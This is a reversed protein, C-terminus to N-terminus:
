LSGSQTTALMALVVSRPPISQAAGLSQVAISAAANAEAVALELCEGRALAAALYGCFCDGAGTTDVLTARHGAVRSVGGGRVIGAGESGMTVIVVQKHSVGLRAISAGLMADSAWAEPAGGSLRALEGENVVLVDTVPLLGIATEDAPAANLVTLAGLARARHFFAATAAAPTEMQALCVDSAEIPLTEVIEKRVTANAGPSVVIQNDDLGTIILACGTPSDATVLWSTDVGLDRLAQRMSTGELDSGIAGALTCNADARAAGVAQNAGKGGLTRTVRSGSITEGPRPLRSVQVILDINVSGLVVVKGM